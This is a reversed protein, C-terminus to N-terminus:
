KCDTKINLQQIIADFNNEVISSNELVTLETEKSKINEELGKVLQRSLNDNIESTPKTTTLLNEYDKATKSSDGFALKAKQKLVWKDGKKEVIGKRVTIIKNPNGKIMSNLYDSVKEINEEPFNFAHITV